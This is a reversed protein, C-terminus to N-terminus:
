RVRFVEIDLEKIMRYHRANATCLALGHCLATAGILADAMRIGHGHFHREVFIMAQTCIREDLSLVSAGWRGVAAKLARLEDRNRMGQVLEMYTVASLCFGPNGDLLARAAVHGRMYWVLVDTDVLM